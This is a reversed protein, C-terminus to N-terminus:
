QIVQASTVRVPDIYITSNADIKVTFTVLSADEIKKAISSSTFLMFGATTGDEIYITTNDWDEQWVPVADFQYTLSTDLESDNYKSVFDNVDLVVPNTESTTVQSTTSTESSSSTTITETTSSETSTTESTTNSTFSEQNTSSESSSSTTTELYRDEIKQTLQNNKRLGTAFVITLLIGVFILTLPLIHHKNPKM